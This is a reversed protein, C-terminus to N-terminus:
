NSNITLVYKQSEKLREETQKGWDKPGTWGIKSIKDLKSAIIYFLKFVAMLYINYM